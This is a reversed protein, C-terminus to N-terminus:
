LRFNEITYVACTKPRQEFEFGLACTLVVAVGLLCKGVLVAARHNGCLSHPQDVSAQQFSDGVATIPHEVLPHTERSWALKIQDPPCPRSSTQPAGETSDATRESRCISHSPARM